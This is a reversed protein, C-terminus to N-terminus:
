RKILLGSLFLSSNDDECKKKWEVRGEYWALNGMMASSFAVRLLTSESESRKSARLRNREAALMLMVGSSNSFSYRAGCLLTLPCSLSVNPFGVGIYSLFM